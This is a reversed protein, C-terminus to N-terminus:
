FFLSLKNKIFLSEVNRKLSCINSFIEEILVSSKNTELSQIITKVFLKISSTTFEIESEYRKILIVNYENTPQIQLKKNKILNLIESCERIIKRLLKFSKIENKSKNIKLKAIELIECIEDLEKQFIGLLDYRVNYDKFIEINKGSFISCVSVFVQLFVLSIKKVSNFKADGHALTTRLKPGYQEIFLDRLVNMLGNGLIDNLKNNNRELISINSGYSQCDLMLNTSYKVKNFECYKLKLCNEFIPILITLGDLEDNSLIIKDFSSNVIQKRNESVFDSSSIVNKDYNFQYPFDFYDLKLIGLTFEKKIKVIELILVIILSKFEKNLENEVVVGHWLLNRLNMKDPCYINKLHTLLFSGLTKNLFEDNLLKSFLLTKQKIFLSTIQKELISFLINLNFKFLEENKNRLYSHCLLAFSKTEIFDDM